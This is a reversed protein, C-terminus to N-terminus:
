DAPKQIRILRTKNKSTPVTVNEPAILFEVLGEGTVRNNTSLLVDTNMAYVALSCYGPPVRAKVRLYGNPIDFACVAHLLDPNPMAVSRSAATPLPPRGANNVGYQETIRDWTVRMALRPTIWVTLIHATVSVVALVVAVILLRRM